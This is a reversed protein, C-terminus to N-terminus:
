FKGRMLILNIVTLCRGLHERAKELNGCKLRSVGLLFHVPTADLGCKSTIELALTFRENEMLKDRLKRFYFCVFSSHLANTKELYIRSYWVSDLVHLVLLYTLTCSLFISIPSSHFEQFKNIQFVSKLKVM